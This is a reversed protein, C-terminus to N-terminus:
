WKRYKIGSNGAQSTIREKHKQAKLNYRPIAGDINTANDKKRNNTESICYTFPTCNIFILKIDENNAAKNEEATSVM